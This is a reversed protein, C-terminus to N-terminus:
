FLCVNDFFNNFGFFFTFDFVQNVNRIVSTLLFTVVSVLTKFFWFVM